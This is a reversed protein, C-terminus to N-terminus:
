VRLARFQPLAYCAHNTAYYISANLLWKFRDLLTRAYALYSTNENTEEDM